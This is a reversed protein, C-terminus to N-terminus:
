LDKNDLIKSLAETLEKDECKEILNEIEKYLRNIKLISEYQYLKKEVDNLNKGIYSKSIKKIEAIESLSLDEFYYFEFCEQKSPTLLKKYIDYLDILEQRKDM